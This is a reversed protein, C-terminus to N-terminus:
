PLFDKVNFTVPALGPWTLTVQKDEALIQQSRYQGTVPDPDSYVELQRDAVNLIWYLPISASAYLAGKLRRDNLLSSDAVEGILRLEQPGPHHTKYRQQPGVAVALDPEPEKGPGPTSSTRLTIPLQSQVIWSSDLAARLLAYTQRVGTAHEPGHGMGPGRGQDKAVWYGDILEARDDEGVIDVEIMRHYQELTLPWLPVAGNLRPVDEPIAGFPWAYGEHQEKSVLYGDRFDVPTDAGLIGTELLRQYQEPSFPMIEALGRLRPAESRTAQTLVM